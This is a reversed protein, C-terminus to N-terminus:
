NNLKPEIEEGWQYTIGWDLELHKRIWFGKYNKRTYMEGEKPRNTIRFLGFYFMVGRQRTYDPAFGFIFNWRHENLKNNVWM